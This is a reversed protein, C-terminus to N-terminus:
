RKGGKIPLGARERRADVLVHVCVAVCDDCIYIGDKGAIIQAVQSQDNDCFSCIIAAPLVLKTPAPQNM